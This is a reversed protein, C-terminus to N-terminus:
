PHENIPFEFHTLVTIYKTKFFSCHSRYESHSLLSCFERRNVDACFDKESDKSFAAFFAM